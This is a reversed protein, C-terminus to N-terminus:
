PMVEFETFCYAAYCLDHLEHEVYYVDGGHGPVVGRVTGFASERRQAHCNSPIILGAASDLRENTRVRTGNKLIFEPQNV